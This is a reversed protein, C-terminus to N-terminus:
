NSSSPIKCINILPLTSFIELKPKKYYNGLIARYPKGQKALMNSGQQSMQNSGPKSDRYGSEFVRGGELMGVDWTSDVAFNTKFYNNKPVTAGEPTKVTRTEDPNYVQTKTTNDVDADCTQGSERRNGAYKGGQNVWYWGYEKVAVAGAKLAEIDSTDPWEEPLVHKVYFNFEVPNCQAINGKEDRIGVRITSPLQLSVANARTANGMILVVLIGILSLNRCSRNIRM